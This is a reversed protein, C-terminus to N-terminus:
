HLYSDHSESVAAHADNTQTTNYIVVLAPVYQASQATCWRDKNQYKIRNRGCELPWLPTEFIFRVWGHADRM